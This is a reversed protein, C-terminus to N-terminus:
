ITETRENTPLGDLSLFVFEIGPHGLPLRIAAHEDHLPRKSGSIM